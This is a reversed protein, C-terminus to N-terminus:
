GANFSALIVGATIGAEATGILEVKIHSPDDCWSSFKYEWDKKTMLGSGNPNFMRAEDENEAAVIMSDYTDWNSNEDQSLKWLKM